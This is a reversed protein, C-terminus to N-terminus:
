KTYNNDVMKSLELSIRVAELSKNIGNCQLVRVQKERWRNTLGRTCRKVCQWTLQQRGHKEMGEMSSGAVLLAKRRILEWELNVKLGTNRGRRYTCFVTQWAYGLWSWIFICVSIQNLLSLNKKTVSYQPCTHHFIKVSTEVQSQIEWMGDYRYRWSFCFDIVAYIHLEGLCMQTMIRLRERLFGIFCSAKCSKVKSMERFCM